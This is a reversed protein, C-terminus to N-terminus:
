YRIGLTVAHLLNRLESPTPPEHMQHFLTEVFEIKQQVAEVIEPQAKLTELLADLEVAAEPHHLKWAAIASYLVASDKQLAVICQTLPVLTEKM